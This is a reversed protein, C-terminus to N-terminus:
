LIKGASQVESKISEIEQAILTSLNPIKKGAFDLLLNSNNSKVIREFQSIDEKKLNEVILSKIRLLVIRNIQALIVQDKMARIHELKAYFFM